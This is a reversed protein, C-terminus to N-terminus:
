VCEKISYGGCPDSRGKLRLKTTISSSSAIEGIIVHSACPCTSWVNRLKGTKNEWIKAKISFSNKKWIFIFKLNYRKFDLSKTM